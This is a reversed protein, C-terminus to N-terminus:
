EEVLISEDHRVSGHGLDAVVEEVAALAAPLNEHSVVFSVGARPGHSPNQSLIHNMPINQEAVKLFFTLAVGPRDPVDDIYIRSANETIKSGTAAILTQIIYPVDGGALYYAQLAECTIGTDDRIGAQVALIKNEVIVKPNIRKFTMGIIDLLRIEAGALTAQLWLTAYKHFIM